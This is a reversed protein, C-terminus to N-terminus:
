APAAQMTAAAQRTSVKETAWSRARRPAVYSKQSGSSHSALLPAIIMASRASGRRATIAAPATAIRGSRAPRATMANANANEAM